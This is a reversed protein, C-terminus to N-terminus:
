NLYRITVRRNLARGEKSQNTDAPFREGHFAISIRSAAVGHDRLVAEVSRVRKESLIDNYSDTGTSDTHGALEIFGTSIAARQAFRILRAQSPADPSAQDFGFYSTPVDPREKEFTETKSKVVPVIVQPEDKVERCGSDGLRKVLAINAYTADTDFGIWEGRIGIGNTFGYELGLGLSVHQSHNRGHTVQGTADENRMVGLGLRGYLSLGERCSMGNTTYRDAFDSRSNLMYFLVTLDAVRYDIRDLNLAENGPDIRDIGAEGLDALYLEASFWRNIDYGINLHYGTDSDDGVGLIEPERPEPELQSVGVGIGIYLRKSFASPTYEYEDSWATSGFVLLASTLCVTLTCVLNLDKLAVLRNM